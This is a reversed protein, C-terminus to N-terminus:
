AEPIEDVVLAVATHDWPGLFVPMNSPQGNITIEVRGEKAKIVVEDGDSVSIEAPNSNFVRRKAREADDECFRLAHIQIKM